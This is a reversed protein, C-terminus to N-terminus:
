GKEFAEFDNIHDFRRRWVLEPVINEVRAVLVDEYHSRNFIGIMGRPPVVQHVRWLYDHALEKKYPTKFSHVRVGQPNVGKFVKRITGDKGGADMAQFVILLKHKDEAYFCQQLEILRNRLDKFEEEAAKRSSVFVNGDTPLEDIRFEQGPILRHNSM